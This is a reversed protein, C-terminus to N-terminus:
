VWEQWGYHAGWMKRMAPKLQCLLLENHLKRVASSKHSLSPTALMPKRSSDGLAKDAEFVPFGYVNQPPFSSISGLLDNELVFSCVIGNKKNSIGDYVIEEGVEEKRGKEKRKQEGAM